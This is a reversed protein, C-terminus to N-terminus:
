AGAQKPPLGGSQDHDQGATHSESRELLRMIYTNVSVGAAAASASVRQHLKGPLRLTTRTEAAGAEPFAGFAREMVDVDAGHIECFKQADEDSLPVVDEYDLATHSRWLFFAGHRTQYLAEDIEPPDMPDGNTWIFSATDTNYAKGDVVRKIGGM